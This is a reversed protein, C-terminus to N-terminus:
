DGPRCGRHDSKDAHTPEQNHPPDTINPLRVRLLECTARIGSAGSTERSSRRKVSEAVRFRSRQREVHRVCPPLDPPPLGAPSSRVAAQSQSECPPQSPIVPPRSSRRGNVAPAFHAPGGPAAVGSN